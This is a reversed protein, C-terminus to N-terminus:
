IDPVKPHRRQANEEWAVYEATKSGMYRRACNLLNPCNVLPELIAIRLLDTVRSDNSSALREFLGFLRQLIESGGCMELREWVFGQLVDEFIPYAGPNERELDYDSGFETEVCTRLEPVSTLLAQYVQDYSIDSM